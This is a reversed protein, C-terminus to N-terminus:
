KAAPMAPAKVYIKVNLTKKGQEVRKQLEASVKQNLLQAKLGDKVDKFPIFTAPKKEELRIIHYGFPTKVPASIEGAKKLKLAAKVFTTEYGGGQEMKGNEDFAPL